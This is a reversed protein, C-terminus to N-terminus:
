PQFTVDRCGPGYFFVAHPSTIEELDPLADSAERSYGPLSYYAITSGTMAISKAFTQM